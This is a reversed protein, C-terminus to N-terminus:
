RLRRLRRSDIDTPRGMFLLQPQGNTQRIKREFGQPLRNQMAGRDYDLGLVPLKRDDRGVRTCPGGADVGAALEARRERQCGGQLGELARRPGLLALRSDNAPHACDSVESTLM